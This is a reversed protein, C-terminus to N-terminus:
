DRISCFLNTDISHFERSIHHIAIGMVFVAVFVDLLICMEVLLSGHPVLTTGLLFIGNEAVLYGIVQTIAKRRTIILTLGALITTFGVVFSLGLAHPFSQGLRSELGLSLVLGVIGLLLSLNYGLYPEIEHRVQVRRLTRGLFWPFAIGKIGLAVLCFLVFLRDLSEHSLLLPILSLAVGQIAALRVCYALRSSSLLALNTLIVLVMLLNAWGSGPVGGVSPFDM